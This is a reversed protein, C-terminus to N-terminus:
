LPQYHSLQWRGVRCGFLSSLRFGVIVPVFLYTETPRAHPSTRWFASVWVSGVTQMASHGRGIEHPSINGWKVVNSDTWIPGGAWPAFVVSNIVDACECLFSHLLDLDSPLSSLFFRFRGRYRAMENITQERTDLLIIQGDYGVSCIITPDGDLQLEGLGNSPPFKM